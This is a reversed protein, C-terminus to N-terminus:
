TMDTKATYMALNNDKVVNDLFSSEIITLANSEINSIHYTHGIRTIELVVIEM